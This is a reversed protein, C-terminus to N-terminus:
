PWLKSYKQHSPRGLFTSYRSRQVQAIRSRAHILNGTSTFVLEHQGTLPSVFMSSTIFELASFDGKQSQCELQALHCYCDVAALWPCRLWTAFTSFQSGQFTFACLSQCLAQLSNMKRESFTTTKVLQCFGVMFQTFHWLWDEMM